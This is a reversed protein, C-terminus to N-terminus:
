IGPFDIEISPTGGLSDLDIPSNAFDKGFNDPDLGFRYWNTLASAFNYSGFDEKLYIYNITGSNWIASVQSAGMPSTWLAISHIKAQADSGGGDDSGVTLRGGTENSQVVSGDVHKTSPSQLSGNKYLRLISGNWTIVFQYWTDVAIAGSYDYVKAATGSGATDVITVRVTTGVFRLEIRSEDTDPSDEDHVFIVQTIGVNTPKVAAMASWSNGLGFNTVSSNQLTDSASSFVLANNDPVKGDINKPIHLGIITRNPM